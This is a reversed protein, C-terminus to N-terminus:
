LFYWDRAGSQDAWLTPALGISLGARFGQLMYQVGARTFGDGIGLAADDKKLVAKWLAALEALFRARRSLTNPRSGAYKGRVSERPVTTQVEVPKSVNKNSSSHGAGPM